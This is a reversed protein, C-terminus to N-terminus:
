TLYSSHHFIFILSKSINRNRENCSKYHFQSGQNIYKNKRSQLYKDSIYLYFLYDMVMLIQTLIGLRNGFIKSRLIADVFGISLQMSTSTVVNGIVQWTFFVTIIYVLNKWIHKTVFYLNEQIFFYFYFFSSTSKKTM